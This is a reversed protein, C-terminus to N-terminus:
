KEIGDDLGGDVLPNGKSAVAVRDRKSVGTSVGSSIKIRSSAFTGCAENLNTLIAISSM